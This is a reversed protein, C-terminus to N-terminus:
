MEVFPWPAGWIPSLPIRSLVKGRVKQNWLSEALNNLLKKTEAFKLVGPTYPPTYVGESVCEAVPYSLIEM